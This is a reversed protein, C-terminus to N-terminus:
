CPFIAPRVRQSSVPARAGVSACLHPAHTPRGLTRAAGDGRQPGDSRLWCPRTRGRAALSADVREPLPRCTAYRSARRVRKIAGPLVRQRINTPSQRGIRQESWRRRSGHRLRQTRSAIFPSPDARPPWRETPQARRSIAVATGNAPRWGFSM